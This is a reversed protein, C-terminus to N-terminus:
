EGPIAFIINKSGDPIDKLESFISEGKEDYTGYMVQSTRWQNWFFNIKGKFLPRKGWEKGSVNMINSIVENNKGSGVQGEWLMWAAGDKVEYYEALGRYAYIFKDFGGYEFYFIGGNGGEETPPLAEKQLSIRPLQIAASRAEDLKKSSLTKLLNEETKYIVVTRTKNDWSVQANMAEGIFRFPVYVTGKRLTPKAGIPVLKGDINATEKGVILQLNKKNGLESVSVTKTKSNWSVNVKPILSVTRIPVLVVNNSIIPAYNTENIGNVNLQIETSHSAASAGNTLLLSSAILLSGILLAKNM